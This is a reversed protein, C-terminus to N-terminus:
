VYHIADAIYDYSDQGFFDKIGELLLEAFEEDEEEIEKIYQAIEIPHANWNWSQYLEQAREKKESLEREQVCEYCNCNECSM